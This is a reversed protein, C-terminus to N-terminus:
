KTGGKPEVLEPKALRAYHAARQAWGAADELLTGRKTYVHIIAAAWHGSREAEVLLADRKM